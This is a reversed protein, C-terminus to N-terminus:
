KMELSFFEKLIGKEEEWERLEDMFRKIWSVIEILVNDFINEWDIFKDRNFRLIWYNLTVKLPNSNGWNLKELIQIKLIDNLEPKGKVVKGLTEKLEIFSKMSYIKEEFFEQMQLCKFLDKENEWKRIEEFNKLCNCIEDEMELEWYKNTTSNELLYNWEALNKYKNNFTPCLCNLEAKFIEDFNELFYRREEDETNFYYSKVINGNEFDTFFQFKDNEKFENILFWEFEYIVEKQKFLTNITETNLDGIVFNLMFSSNVIEEYQEFHSLKLFEEKEKETKFYGCELMEKKAILFNKQRLYDSLFKEIINKMWEQRFYFDWNEFGNEIEGVVLVAPEKLWNLEKFELYFLTKTEDKSYPLEVYDFLKNFQEYNMM